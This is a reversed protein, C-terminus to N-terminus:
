CVGACATGRRGTDGGVGEFHDFMRSVPRWWSQPGTFEDPLEVALLRCGCRDAATPGFGEVRGRMIQAARLIIDARKAPSTRSWLRFGEEATALADNLDAWTAHPVTGLVSEDAPNIVPIGEASKWEGGIYLKLEPYGAM